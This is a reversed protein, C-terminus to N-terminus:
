IYEEKLAVAQLRGVSSTGQVDLHPHKLLGLGLTQATFTSSHSAALFLVLFISSM